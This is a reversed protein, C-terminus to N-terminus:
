FSSCFHGNVMKTWADVKTEYSGFMYTMAKTYCWFGTSGSHYGDPDSLYELNKNKLFLPLSTDNMYNTTKYYKNELMLSKQLERKEFYTMSYYYELVGIVCKALYAFSSKYEYNTTQLLNNFSTFDGIDIFYIPSITIEKNLNLQLHKLLIEKKENIDPFLYMIKYWELILMHIEEPLALLRQSLEM